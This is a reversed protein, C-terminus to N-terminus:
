IIKKTYNTNYGAPHTGQLHINTTTPILSTTPPSEVSTTTLIIPFFQAPNKSLAIYSYLRVPQFPEHAGRGNTSLFFM